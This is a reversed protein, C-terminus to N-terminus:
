EAGIVRGKVTHPSMLYFCKMLIMFASIHPLQDCGCM